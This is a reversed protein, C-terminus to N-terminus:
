HALITRVAARVEALEADYDIPDGGEATAARLRARDADTIASAIQLGVHDHAKLAAWRAAVAANIDFVMPTTDAARRTKSM